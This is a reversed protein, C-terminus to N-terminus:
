DCWRTVEARSETHAMQREQDSLIRKQGQADREYLYAAQDTELARNKAALCAQEREAAAKAATARTAKHEARAAAYEELLRQTRGADPPQSPHPTSSPVILKQATPNAPRDGLHVQGDADVWRFIEAAQAPLWAAWLLAALMIKLDNRGVMRM